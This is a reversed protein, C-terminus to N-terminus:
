KIFWCRRKIWFHDIFDEVYHDFQCSVSHCHHYNGMFHPKRTFHSIAYQEHIISTDNLIPWCIFKKRIWFALTCSIEQAFDKIMLSIWKSILSEIELKCFNSKVGCLSKALLLFTYVAFNPLTSRIFKTLLRTLSYLRRM